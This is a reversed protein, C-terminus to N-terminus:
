SIILQGTKLSAKMAAEDAKAPKRFAQKTGCRAQAYKLIWDTTMM